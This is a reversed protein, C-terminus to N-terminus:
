RPTPNKTSAPLRRRWARWLLLPGDWARLVPREHLTAYNLHAIKELIRLGGQVILRLEWGPGGPLRRSLPEGQLLLDQTWEALERVLAHTAPTEQQAILSAVPVRYRRCVDLPVYLRGRATDLSLDQWFNTLQLGTCLADSERVSQEDGIGYLHLLLRGVPNAARRCHDLLEEQSIYRNKTVDQEFAGLLDELPAQPLDFAARAQALPAFVEPWRPSPEQGAYIAHLDARYAQLAALRELAPCSGEDALNDATRAYRYIAAVAPRLRPPCLVSAVPFNQYPNATVAPM